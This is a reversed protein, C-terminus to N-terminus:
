TRWKTTEDRAIDIWVLSNLFSVAYRWLIYYAFGTPVLVAAGRQLTVGSVSLRPALLLGLGILLIALVAGHWGIRARRPPGLAAWLVNWCGWIIPNIAIPLILARQVSPELDDFFVVAITGAVGVVVTPVAIGALFARVYRHARVFSGRFARAAHAARGSERRGQLWDPENM